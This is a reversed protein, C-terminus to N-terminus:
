KIPMTRKNIMRRTKLFLPQKKFDKKVLARPPMPPNHATHATLKKTGSEKPSLRKERTNLTSKETGPTINKSRQLVNRNQIHSLM